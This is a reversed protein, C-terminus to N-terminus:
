RDIREADRWSMRYTVVEPYDLNRVAVLLDDVVALPLVPIDLLLESIVRCDEGLVHLLRQDTEPMLVTNLLQGTPLPLISASHSFRNWRLGVGRDSRMVVEDPDTTWEPRGHCVSLTGLQEDLQWVAYPSKQSYVYGDRTRSLSGGLLSDEFGALDRQPMPPGAEATVDGKGNLIKIPLLEGTGSVSVVFEPGPHVIMSNVTWGPPVMFSRSFEYDPGFVSIAARGPDWVYLSDGPGVQVQWPSNFEGPGEGSRGITAVFEGTLEFVKLDHSLDDAVVVRGRSDIALSMIRGFTDHEGDMSGIATKEDLVLQRQIDALVIPHAEQATPQPLNRAAARHPGLLSDAGTLRVVAVRQLEVSDTVVGIALEDTLRHPAFGEPFIVRQFWPTGDSRSVTMWARGYGLPHSSGDFEQIWIRGPSCRLDVGIPAAEPMQDGARALLEAAAREIEADSVDSGGMENRARARVYGLREEHTLPRGTWPLPIQSHKTGDPGYLHLSRHVPDLVAVMGDSCGDWLPVPALGIAPVRSAAGPLDVAFDVVASPEPDGHTVRLIKGRWFHDGEALGGPYSAAWIGTDDEAARFPDGFTVSRIDARISERDVPTPSSSVFNGGADFVSRRRTALDWAVVGGASTAASLIWPNRLEGPGEGSSGFDGLMRGSRDYARLFPEVATLVWIQGGSEIIDRVGWLEEGEQFTTLTSPAIEVDGNSIDPAGPTCSGVGLAMLFLLPLAALRLKSQRHVLVSVLAALSAVAAALLPTALADPHRLVDGTGGMLLLGSGLTLTCALFGAAMGVYERWAGQRPVRRAERELASMVADVSSEPLPSDSAGVQRISAILRRMELVEENASGDAPDRVQGPDGEMVASVLRDTTEEDPGLRGSARGGSLMGTKKHM